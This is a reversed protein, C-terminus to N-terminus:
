ENFIDGILRYFVERRKDATRELNAAEFAAIVRSAVGHFKRRGLMSKATPHSEYIKVSKTRRDVEVAVKASREQARPVIQVNTISKETAKKLASEFKLSVEKEKEERRKTNRLKEEGWSGPFILEHLISHVFAQLRIYQPDLTNFGDRDVKLADDLGEEVFVEASLMSFRPGEAQPYTMVNVDYQGVAVNRLRVLVGQYEKPFLRSTQLFIYGNFKLPYGNVKKNYEFWYLKFTADSNKVRIDYRQIKVNEEYVGDILTFEDLEPKSPAICDSAPTRDRNSPFLVPRRLEINDVEVRFGYSKILAQVIAIQPIKTLVTEVGKGNSTKEVYPIPAALALGFVFQDYQSAFYLSSLQPNAIAELYRDFTPYSESSNYFRKNALRELNSMTRRFSDRLSSTNVTIGSKGPQYPLDTIKYEGHAIPQTNKGQEQEAIIKDIEQRSYPPFKIEAEFATKTEAHFSSISFRPCIQALSLLGVGLRGIVPRGNKGLTQTSIQKESDGIGGNMLDIFKSRSIGSGDDECSFFDFRPFGTHIKAYSAGADYANSILEKVAGAPTRYMGQSIHGIVKAALKVPKWTETM